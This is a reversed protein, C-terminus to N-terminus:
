RIKTPIVGIRCNKTLVSRFYPAIGQSENVLKYKVGLPKKKLVAAESASLDNNTVMRDLVLNRRALAAKPNHRPDYKGPGSLMGVLLAAEDPTLKSPEKQFYVLSANRIGYVNLWSVRNLYLAIIEQKTFNRELKLAVIWEKIKDIGRKLVSGRGQGCFIKQWNSHLRVPAARDELGKLLGDWRLLILAQINM